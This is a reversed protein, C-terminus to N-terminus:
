GLAPDRPDGGERLRRPNARGPSSRPPGAARGLRGVAGEGELRPLTLEGSGSEGGPFGLDRLGPAVKPRLSWSQRGIEAATAGGARGTKVWGQSNALGESAM